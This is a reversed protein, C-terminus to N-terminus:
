WLLKTTRIDQVFYKIIIKHHMHNIKKQIHSSLENELKMMMDLAHANQMYAWEETTHLHANM